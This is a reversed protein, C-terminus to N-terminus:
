RGLAASLRSRIASGWSCARLARCRTQESLRHRWNIISRRLWNWFAACNARWEPWTKIRFFHWWAMLWEHARRLGLKSRLGTAILGVGTVDTAPEGSLTYLAVLVVVVSGAALVLWNAGFGWLWRVVIAALALVALDIWPPQRDLETPVTLLDPREDDDM